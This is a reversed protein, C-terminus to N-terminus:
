FVQELFLLPNPGGQVTSQPTETPDLVPKPVLGIERAITATSSENRLNSVGNRFATGTLELVGSFFHSLM